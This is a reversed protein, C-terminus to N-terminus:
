IASLKIAFQVHYQQDTVTYHTAGFESIQIPKRYSFTKYVYDLLELPDEQDARQQINNNHYMVNYINVGVWDVYQDGPYYSMM